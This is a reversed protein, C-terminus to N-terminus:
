AYHSINLGSGMGIELIDGQAQSVMQERIRAFPPQNMVRDLIPPLIHKEYWNM